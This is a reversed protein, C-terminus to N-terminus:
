PLEWLAAVVLPIVSPVSADQATAQDYPAPRRPQSVQPLNLQNNITQLM